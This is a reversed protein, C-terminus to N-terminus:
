RVVLDRGSEEWSNMGGDLDYIDEYGIDVLQQSVIGSMRGSRCYVAIKKDKSPLEDLHAGINEWDEVVLDTGEIEGYYPTHVQLTFVDDNVLESFEESNVLNVGGSGGSFVFYGAVILVTVIALLIIRKDM